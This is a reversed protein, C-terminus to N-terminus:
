PLAATTEALAPDNTIVADVGMAAADILDNMDDLTYPVVKLGRNHARQVYEATIPWGPSIYDAGAAAAAELVVDNTGNLSLYSIEAPEFYPISEFVDLNSPWFSQLILRKAPFESRQIRAAIRHSYYPSPSPDFDPDGPVNKIELNIRAKNHKAMKLVQGLKPVPARRPDDPGM